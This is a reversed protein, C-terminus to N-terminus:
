LGSSAAVVVILVLLGIAGLLGLLAGLADVKPQTIELAEFVFNYPSSMGAGDLTLYLGFQSGTTINMGHVYWGESYSINRSPIVSDSLKGGPPITTPPTSAGAQMYKTGEHLVNSTQGSPLAVSTRDWNVAIAQTSRNTITFGIGEYGIGLEAPRMTFSILINEDSYSLSNSRAPQLLRFSDASVTVSVVVAMLLAMGLVAIRKVPISKSM